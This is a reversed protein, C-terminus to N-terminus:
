QQQLSHVQALLAHRVYSVDSKLNNIRFSREARRNIRKLERARKREARNWEYQQRTQDAPTMEQVRSMSSNGYGDTLHSHSEVGGSIKLTNGILQSATTADGLITSTEFTSINVPAFWNQGFNQPSDPPSDSGKHEWSEMTDTHDKNLFQFSRDGDPEWKELAEFEPSRAPVATSNLDIDLSDGGDLTHLHPPAHPRPRDGADSRTMYNAPQELKKRLLVRRTADMSTLKKRVKDARIKIRQANKENRVSDKTEKDPVKGDGGTRGLMEDEVFKTKSESMPSYARSINKDISETALSDTLMGFDPSMYLEPESLAKIQRARERQRNAKPDNIGGDTSYLELDGTSVSHEQLNKARMRSQYRNPIAEIVKQEQEPAPLHAEISLVSGHDSMDDGLSTKTQALALGRTAELDIKKQKADALKQALKIKRDLMTNSFDPSADRILASSDGRSAKYQAYEERWNTGEGKKLFRNALKAMDFNDEEELLDTAPLTTSGYQWHSVVEGNPGRFSSVIPSNLAEQQKQQATLAAMEKDSKKATFNLFETHKQQLPSGSQYKKVMSHRTRKQKTIDLSDDKVFKSRQRANAALTGKIKIDLAEIRRSELMKKAARREAAMESDEDSDYESDGDREYNRIMRRNRAETDTSDTDSAAQYIKGESKLKSYIAKIQQSQQESLTTGKKRAALRALTEPVHSVITNPVTLFHRREAAQSFNVYMTIENDVNTCCPVENIPRLVPPYAVTDGVSELISWAFIAYYEPNMLEAWTDLIEFMSCYFKRKSIVTLRSGEPLHFYDPADMIEVGDPPEYNEDGFFFGLENEKEEEMQIESMRSSMTLLSSRGGGKKSFKLLEEKNREARTKRPPERTDEQWNMEAHRLVKDKDRTGTLAVYLNCNFKIYGKKTLFNDDDEDSICYPLVLYWFLQFVDRLGKNKHFTSMREELRKREFFKEMASPPGAMRKNLISMWHDLKAELDVRNEKSMQYKALMTECKVIMKKINLIDSRLRVAEQEAAKMSKNADEKLKTEYAARQDPNMKQVMASIRAEEEDAKKKEREKMEKPRFM